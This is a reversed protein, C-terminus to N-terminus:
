MDQDGLGPLLFVQFSIKASKSKKRSISIWFRKGSNEKAVMKDPRRDLFYEVPELRETWANTGGNREMAMGRNEVGAKPCDVDDDYNRDDEKGVGTNGM